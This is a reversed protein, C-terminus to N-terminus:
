LLKAKRKAEERIFARKKGKKEKLVSKDKQRDREEREMKQQERVFNVMDLGELGM